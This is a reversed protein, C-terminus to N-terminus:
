MMHITCLNEWSNRTTHTFEAFIAWRIPLIQFQFVSELEKGLIYIIERKDFELGMPYQFVIEVSSKSYTNGVWMIELLLPQFYRAFLFTGNYSVIFVKSFRTEMIKGNFRFLFIGYKGLINTNGPLLVTYPLVFVLFIM